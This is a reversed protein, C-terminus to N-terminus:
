VIVREVDKGADRFLRAAYGDSHDHQYVFASIDSEALVRACTPCPMLNIFLTTDKLSLAHKQAYLVLEMEAHVTDYHNLDNAPSFHKERLAGHHMAYTQYPVVRNFTTALLTYKKGTTKGLAVGTQFTHDFSQKAANAAHTLMEEATYVSSISNQIDQTIDYEAAYTKAEAEDIFPSVLEYPIQRNVLSYYSPTMHFSTHWSGNVFIVSSLKLKELMFPLERQLYSLTYIKHPSASANVKEITKQVAGLQLTRFQAQGEFGDVYAEKAVGLVINGKPLYAKVLAIFRADSMERPAAIFTARLNNLPKKSQFALESWDFAYDRM